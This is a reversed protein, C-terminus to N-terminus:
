YNGHVRSCNNRNIVWSISSQSRTMSRMVFRRTKCESGRGAENEPAFDTDCRCPFAWLQNLISLARRVSQQDGDLAGSMTMSVVIWLPFVVLSKKM